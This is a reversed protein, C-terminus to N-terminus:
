GRAGVAKSWHGLGNRQVLGMQELKALYETTDRELEEHSIKYHTQLVEVLGVFDIGSLSAEV